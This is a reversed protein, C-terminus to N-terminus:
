QREARPQRQKLKVYLLSLADHLDGAPTEWFCDKVVRVFVNMRDATPNQTKYFYFTGGQWERRVRPSMQAGWTKEIHDVLQDVTMEKVDVPAPPSAPQPPRSNSPPIASSAPNAPWLPAPHAASVDPVTPMVPMSPAMGPLVSPPAVEMKPPVPEVPKAAPLKEQKGPWAVTDSWIPKEDDLLWVRLRGPQAYKEAARDIDQLGLRFDGHADTWADLVFFVLRLGNEEIGFAAPKKLSNDQGLIRLLKQNGLEMLEMSTRRIQGPAGQIPQNLMNIEHKWTAVAM